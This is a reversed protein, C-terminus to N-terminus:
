YGVDEPIVIDRSLPFAKDLVAGRVEANPEYLYLYRLLHEVVKRGYARGENYEFEEILWPFTADPNKRFWRAIPGPGTNYAAAAPVYLGSFNDVLKRIYFGSYRFGVEPRPFTALNFTAGIESAVKRATEPQM